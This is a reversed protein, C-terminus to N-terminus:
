SFGTPAANTARAFADADQWAEREKARKEERDIWMAIIIVLAVTMIGTGGIWMYMAALQQDYLASIGWLRPRDAYYPYMVTERYTIFAGLVVQQAMTAAMFLIRIPYNLRSSLPKPDILVWWFLMSTTVFSWHEAIHVWPHQTAYEYSHKYFHWMWVDISYMLFITVPHAVFRYFSHAGKSQMLPSVVSKRFGTPLGKLIPTAPAGLLILPPGIMMLVMHQIMHMSFLDDALADPPGALALTMLALGGFFSYPAWPRLTWPKPWRSLGRAYLIGAAFPLLLLPNTLNWHLLIRWGESVAGGSEPPPLVHALLALLPGM